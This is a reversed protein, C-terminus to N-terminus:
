ISWKNIISSIRKVMKSNMGYYSPLTLIEKSLKETNKLTLNKYIKKLHSQRHDPLPYHIEAFINFKRLYKKLADRKKCRIVYLHNVSDNNIKNNPTIINPHNILKNYQIAVERKKQNMKDLNPLLKSLVAAQIEDLRSNRGGLYKIYYKQKGEEGWGYQRFAYARKALIKNNTAVAGGDGIGGLNKTPYFSFTSVNGFTGAKKNNITAGHAQACDEILIIKKKKCFEAIKKIENTVLGYLHTVIIAKVGSKASKIIENFNLNQTNLDVDLYFPTANISLIANTSYMGANASTAVKDGSKIGTIKLAIELADSGNAVGICHNVRLYKAFSKEFEKVKPGLVFNNSKIVKLIENYINKKNQKILFSLNNIFIKKDM